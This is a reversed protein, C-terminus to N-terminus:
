IHANEFWLPINRKTWKAFRKKEKLYYNRYSKISTDLKCYDPMAPPPDTFDGIPINLPTNNIIDYLKNETLHIKGYRHTYECCLGVWLRYLWNYNSASNRVWIASPHSIHSAKYLLQEYNDRGHRWRKIKRGNQIETYQTGDLVRHATSMLQAYEIIMKVIHKDCHMKACEWTNKDLYFVNM